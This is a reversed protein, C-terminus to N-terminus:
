VSSLDSIMPIPHVAVLARVSVIATPVGNGDRQITATNNFQDTISILRDNENYAFSNLAVGSDIDITTKHRGQGSIIHGLGNEEAFAIDGQSM